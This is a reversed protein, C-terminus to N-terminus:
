NADNPRSKMLSRIDRMVKNHWETNISSWFEHGKQSKKWEFAGDIWDEVRDSEFIWGSCNEFFTMADNAKLFEVFKIYKKYNRAPVRPKM